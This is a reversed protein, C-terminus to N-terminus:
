RCVSNSEWWNHLTTCWLLRGTSCFSRYCTEDPSRKDWHGWYCSTLGFKSNLVHEKFIQLLNHSWKYKFYFMEYCCIFTFSRCFRVCWWVRVRGCDSLPKVCFVVVVTYLVILRHCWVVTKVAINRHSTHWQLDKKDKLLEVDRDFPWFEDSMKVIRYRIM